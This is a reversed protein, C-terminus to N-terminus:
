ARAREPGTLPRFERLPQSALRSAEVADLHLREQARVAPEGRPVPVYTGDPQMRRAKVNDGFYTHLIGILRKRHNPDLVPIIIELRKDLNRKMWDASGMWVEEHGGNRFYYIRAHELYRDVISIVDVNDSVGPVHPRLICMGRINLLVRVGAQSAKCLLKCMGEDQLSNLKAIILGPDDPTSQEIEREILNKFQQRIGGPSVAFKSWGVVQSYGTLLNFFASADAAMERDSTLLSLDSYLQATRENYNGTSVHVYRRIGHADRRIILLLKGHTKYGAIGYIVHCGADEMRRAWEMNRTEDFRARLEVLVTVQKGTRGAKELAAIVRSGSSTRYLTQKIALVAPDDAATELLRLVPEFSEYPHFLLVDHDQIAEWLSDYGVLDHPPQPPWDPDRLKNFGPRNVIEMLGTAALMGDIEYIDPTSVDFWEALRDKLFPDPNASIELRVVSRRRRETVAEEIAQLLDGAEDDDVAVDADRTIRFVVTSMIKWGAFLAAANMAIVDEILALELVSPSPVVVFRPLLSPVPIVAVKESAEAGPEILKLAINLGLGPLIPFPQLEDVALPTLLPLVDSEFHSALFSQEGAQMKDPRLLMLKREALEQFAKAIGASQEAVMRHARHSIQELQEAPGLGSVDRSKVGLRAQQRVGAVRIMFYEDLNSSVIALFKLREMLPVEQSLGERLVRDNFELWSLERNIYLEPSNLDIKNM